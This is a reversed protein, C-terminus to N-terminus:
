RNIVPINFLRMRVFVDNIIQSLRNGLFSNQHKGIRFLINKQRYSSCGVYGPINPTNTLLCLKIVASPYPKAAQLTQGTEMRTIKKKREQFYYIVLKPVSFAITSYLM